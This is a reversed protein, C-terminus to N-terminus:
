MSLVDAETVTVAVVAAWIWRELASVEALVCVWVCVRVCVWTYKFLPQWLATLLPMFHIVFTVFRISHQLGTGLPRSSSSTSFHFDVCLTYIRWSSTVALLNIICVALTDKIKASYTVGRVRQCCCCGLLGLSRSRCANSSSPLVVDPHPDQWPSIRSAAVWTSGRSPCRYIVRAM